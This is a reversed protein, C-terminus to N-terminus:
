SALRPQSLQVMVQTVQTVCEPLAHRFKRKMSTFSHILPEVVEFFSDSSRQMVPTFPVCQQQKIIGRM